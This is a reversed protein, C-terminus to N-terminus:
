YGGEIMPHSREICDLDDKHLFEAVMESDFTFSVGRDDEDWGLVDKNTDSWM